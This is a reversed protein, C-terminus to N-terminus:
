VDNNEMPMWNIFQGGVEVRYKRLHEKDMIWPHAPDSYILGAIHKEFCPITSRGRSYGNLNAVLYPSTKEDDEPQKLRVVIYAADPNVAKRDVRDTRMRIVDGLEYREKSVIPAYAFRGSDQVILKDDVLEDVVVKIHELDHGTLRDTTNERIHDVIESHTLPGKTRVGVLTIKRLWSHRKGPWGM